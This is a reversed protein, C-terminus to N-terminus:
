FHFINKQIETETIRREGTDNQIEYVHSKKLDVIPFVPFLDPLPTSVTDAVEDNNAFPQLPEQTLIQTGATMKM